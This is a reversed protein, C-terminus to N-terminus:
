FAKCKKTRAMGVGHDQVDELVSCYSLFKTLCDVLTRLLSCICCQLFTGLYPGSRIGRM